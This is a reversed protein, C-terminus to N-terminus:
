EVYLQQGGVEVRLAADVAGAGLGVHLDPVAVGLDVEVHCAFAPGLAWIAARDIRQLGALVDGILM